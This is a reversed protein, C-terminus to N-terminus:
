GGQKLLVLKLENALFFNYIQPKLYKEKIQWPDEKQEKSITLYSFSLSVM